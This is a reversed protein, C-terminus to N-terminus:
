RRPPTDIKLEVAKAEGDRLSVKTANSRAADLFDPDVFDGLPKSRVATAQYDGKPLGTIRFRRERDCPVVSVYTSLFTWRGPDQSFVVVSCEEVPAVDNSTVTGSLVSPHSTLEVELADAGATTGLEFGADTVDVGNMRVGKLAWEPPLGVVRVVALGPAGRVLFTGDDHVEAVSVPDFRETDTYLTLVKFRVLSGSTSSHGDVLIRGSVSAPSSIVISTDRVDAGQISLKKFGSRPVQSGNSVIAQVTYDGPCVNDLTFVGNGDAHVNSGQVGVIGHHAIATVLANPVPAGDEGLVAGTLSAAKQDPIRLSIGSLSDGAAIDVPTADQPEVSDFFYSCGGAASGPQPSRAAL